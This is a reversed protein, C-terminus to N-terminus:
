NSASVPATSKRVVLEVGLILSRLPAKNELHDILIRAAQLGKEFAPQRVTTLPPTIYRGLPIDDFGVVSVDGPVSLGSEQIAQIAGIAMVDNALFIATPPKPLALLRQTNEYGCEVSSSKAMPCCDEDHPLNYREMVELYGALRDQSSKLSPKSIYAIRRHGLSILHEMVQVAGEKNDVDVHPTKEEASILATSVFPVDHGALAELINQHFSGPSLLVFGDVRKQKYIDLYNHQHAYCTVMYYGQRDVETSVGRMVETYFPNSFVYEVEHPVLLGIHHSKQLSIAKAFANPQFDYEDILALIKERTAPDVDPKNNLVRSVTTKSVNAIRAIESITIRMGACGKTPHFGSHNEGYGSGNGTGYGTVSINCYECLSTLSSFGRWSCFTVNPKLWIVNTLHPM